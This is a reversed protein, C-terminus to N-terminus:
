AQYVAPDFSESLDIEGSKFAPNDYVIEQTPALMMLRSPPRSYMPQGYEYSIMSAKDVRDGQFETYQPSRPGKPARAHRWCLCCVALGILFLILGGISIAVPIVIDLTNDSLDEAKIREACTNGNYWETCVCALPERECTAGNKCYGRDCEHVCETGTGDVDFYNPFCNCTYGLTVASNVTCTANTSCHNAAASSCYSLCQNISTSGTTTTFRRGEPCQTCTFMNAAPQYTGVPCPVCSNTATSFQQGEICPSRCDSEQTAGVNPTYKISYPCDICQFAGSSPQYTGRECAVCRQENLIYRNGATCPSVNCDDVSDSGTTMTLLGNPCQTCTEASQNSKYTGHACPQCQNNPGVVEGLPCISICDAISTSGTQRTSNGTPCNTCSVQWKQSNYTGVPCMQCTNTNTNRYYGPQTCNAITCESADLGGEGVTIHSIPCLQCQAQTRITSNRYYGRPCITCSQTTASYEFGSGCNLVCDTVSDAGTQLTVPTSSPCSKCQEQWIQDQYKDYPCLRCQPVSPNTLRDLYYGMGCAPLSCLTPDTAGTGETTTNAPCARCRAAAYEVKYYGRACEQCMGGIDEYGPRCELICDAESITGPRETTKDTGCQICSSQWKLPQYYGKACPQCTNNSSVLYTGASCNAVTCQSASTSNVSPTIFDIPCLQCMAFLGDVANNKYYGQQCGVCNGTATKEFGSNCYSECQTLSTSNATRTSQGTPCDICSSQYANPQYTGMPCADCGSDDANRKTGPPCTRINCDLVSDSGTGATTYLTNCQKCMMFLGDANDKYYGKECPICIGNRKEQGSPCYTECQGSSNSAVQRTSYGSDCLKCDTSYPVDQYTGLPCPECDNNAANPKYGVPCKYITCNLASTAGQGATRLNNPCLTCTGQINISNDKYYGIPCIQCSTGSVVQYGSPCYYLCQSQSSSGTTETRWRASDGCSICETQWKTPQYTNLPCDKCTNTTNDRYTGAECAVIDCQSRSKTATTLTIFGTPCNVCTSTETANRYQGIQCAVCNGVGNLQYGSDCTPSCLSSSNTGTFETTFGASCPKCSFQGTQDQYYGLPCPMCNNNAYSFYQGVPCSKKCMNPDFEGTLETTMGTGCSKCMTQKALDQYMGLPCDDCVATTNTADLYRFYNGPGCEVCQGDMLVEGYACVATVQIVYNEKEIDGGAITDNFNLVDDGLIFYTLFDETLIQEGDLTTSTDASSLIIELIIGYDITQRKRRGNNNGCTTKLSLNSCDSRQCLTGQFILQLKVFEELVRAKLNTDVANCASTDIRYNVRIYIKSRPMERVIGCSPYRFRRNNQAWNWSGSPGCTFLEPHVRDILHTSTTNCSIMCGQRGSVPDQSCTQQGNYPNPPRECNKERVYLRFNCFARNNSGDVGVYTVDYIGWTYTSGPQHTPEMVYGNAGINNFTPPTWTVTTIRDASYTIIDEPCNMVEPLTTSTYSSCSPVRGAASCEVGSAESPIRRSVGSELVYENWVLIVQALNADFIKQPDAFIQPIEQQFTLLRKYWNVQSLYGQFSNGTMCQHNENDFECGLVVWMRFSSNSMQFQAGSERDHSVTDLYLSVVGSAMDWQFTVLHWDGDNVDANRDYTLQYYPTATSLYINVGNEDLEILRSAEELRDGMFQTLYVGTAGKQAYRVWLSLSLYNPSEVSIPYPIWAFGYGQPHNFHLDYNRDFERACNTGTMKLPCRCYYGNIDDFCTGGGPCVVTACENIETECHQGTYGALCTCTYRNLSDVSCTAGNMCPNNSGCNDRLIQCGDGTYAVPCTCTMSGSFSCPASNQCKNYDQCPDPRNECNTGYTSSPCDCYYGDFINRCTALCQGGSSPLSCHQTIQDCNKGQWGSPCVCRYDNFMHQCTGGHLCPNSECFQTEDECMDGEYGPYCDCQYGVATISRCTGHGSCTIQGSPPRCFNVPTECNTGQYGYACSCNYTGVLDTCTGGNRCPNSACENINTQCNKGTFGFLCTCTYGGFVNSCSGGNVCPQPTCYDNKATCINNLFVRNAACKFQVYYDLTNSIRIGQNTCEAPFSTSDYCEQGVRCCITALPTTGGCINLGLNNLTTLQEDDFPDALSPSDLDYKLSYFDGEPYIVVKTFTNFGNMSILTVGSSMIFCRNQTTDFAFMACGSQLSTCKERCLNVTNDGTATLSQVNNPGINQQIQYQAYGNQDYAYGPSCICARNYHKGYVDVCNALSDRSRCNFSSCASTRIECYTGSYGSPCDCRFSNTLDHCTGGNICPTSACDDTNIECNEGEYGDKCFCKRRLNSGLSTDTCNLVGPGNCPQTVCIATKASCDSGSYGSPCLCQTFGAFNICHGGNKCTPNTPDTNCTKILNECRTGTAFGRCDCTFGSPASTCTGNNYCPNSSCHNVATGCQPGFYQGVTCECNAEHNRIACNGGNQCRNTCLPTADLCQSAATLGTNISYQSNPNCAICATSGPTNQYYNRPCSRCASNQSYGNYSFYGAACQAICDSESASTLTATRTNLGCSYCSTSGSTNSYQNQGCPTCPSMGTASYFGPPCKDFCMTSATAGTFYTSRNNDCSRCQGEEQDNYTGLPCNECLQTAANRQTGRPCKVRLETESICQLSGATRTTQGSPCQQCYTSNFPITGVACPTCPALGSASYYGSGCKALCQTSSVAGEFYTSTGSPCDVCNVQATSQRYKGIPCLQCDNNAISQTGVPCPENSAVTSSICSEPGIGGLGVTTNGPGCQQCTTSSTRYYGKPCLYCPEYGSVSVYNSSCPAVCQSSSTAGPYRTTYGNPCSQCQTDTATAYNGVPCVSCVQGNSYTGAPCRACRNQDTFSPFYPLVCYSGTRIVVAVSDWKLTPCTTNGVINSSFPFTNGPVGISNNFNTSCSTYIAPDPNYMTYDFDMQVQRSNLVTGVTQLTLFSISLQDLPGYTVDCQRTLRAEMSSFASPSGSQLRENYYTVCGAPVSLVADDAPIYQYRITGIFQKSVLNDNRVCDPVYASFSSSATCSTTISTATTSYFSYGPNCQLTCSYGNSIQTCTKNGNVPTPLALPSCPQALIIIQFNCSSQLGANDTVTMTMTYVQNLNAYSATFTSPSFEVRNIGSYDSYTGVYGSASDTFNITRVDDGTALYVARSSPCTTIVPPKTDDICAPFKDSAQWPTGDNCTVTTSAGINRLIKGTNCTITCDYGGTRRVCSKSGLSPEQLSLPSCVPPVATYQFTCTATNAARDTVSMQVTFPRYLDSSTFTHNAPSFVTSSITNTDSISASGVLTTFDVFQQSTSQTLSVTQSPPCTVTPQLTDRVCAPIWSRDWNGTSTTCTVTVSKSNVFTYLDRCTITCQRGAPFTTTTCTKDADLPTPYSLESCTRPRVFIQGRCYAQNNNADAVQATYTYTKYLDLSTVYAPPPSFITFSAVNTNDSTVFNTAQQLSISQNSSTTDLEVPPYQSCVIVPPTEDYLQVNIQCTAINGQFDTATYTVTLDNEVFLTTNANAPNITFSRVGTNDIANLVPLRPALQEYKRVVIPSTPCNTITPNETDICTPVTGIFSTGQCTLGVNNSLTYGSRKCGFTVTSKDAFSSAILYGGTPFGPDLCSQGTCQLSGFDWTGDLQCTVTSASGANTVGQRSGDTCQFTFSAGYRTSTVPGYNTGPYATPTGCDIVGCEYSSGQLEYTNTNYNYTCFRYRNFDGDQRTCNLYLRQGYPYPGTNFQAVNLLGSPNETPCTAAACVPTPSEWLGNSGCKRTSRYPTFGIDCQYEVYDGFRHRTRQTLLQGNQIPPPSPCEILVCTHNIYYSDTALLGTEGAQRPISYGSTGDTVYLVYPVPCTCTYTGAPTNSCTGACNDTNLTCENIDSCFRGNPQLEYGPGCSCVYSGDTNTCIDGCPPNTTCEDIDVCVPLQTLSRDAMCTVVSISSNQLVYGTNCIITRTNEYEIFEGAANSSYRGNPIEPLRCTLKKCSPPSAQTWTGNPQCFVIPEGVFEYGANCQFRYITGISTGDGNVLTGNGNAVFTTIQGAPCTAATCAPRTSWTGDSRCTIMNGLVPAPQLTSGPYCQYVAVSGYTSGYSSEIYGNAIEPAVGCYKPTCRPIQRYNWVGRYGCELEVTLTGTPIQEQQIAYGTACSLNFKATYYYIQSGSSLIDNSSYNPQPCGVSWMALFGRASRTPSTMMELLLNGSPIQFTNGAINSTGYGNAPMGALAVGNNYIKLYDGNVDRGYSADQLRSNSDFYIAIPETVTVNWRCHVFGPYDINGLYGPTFLTGSKTTSEFYCGQRYNFQFIVNNTVTTGTRLLVSMKNGTSFVLRKNNCTDSNCYTGLLSDQATDGDFFMIMDDDNLTVQEVQLTILLGLQYMNMTEIVVIYDRQGLFTQVGALSFPQIAYTKRTTEATLTVTHGTSVNLSGYTGSFGTSVVTSDTSFKIFMLNNYSRYTRSGLNGSIRAVRTALTEINSGVYVTVFDAEKETNFNQFEVYANTGLPTEIAWTCTRANLYTFAALSGTSGKHVYHCRNPCNLEDSGDMCDTRGDCVLNVSVYGGSFCHFSQQPAAMRECVFNRKILCSGYSWVYPRDYVYEVTNKKAFVCTGDADDPEADAWFAMYDTAAEGTSWRLETCSTCANTKEKSLGIYYTEGATTLTDVRGGLLDNEYQDKITVLRSGYSQCLEQARQYSAKNVGSFFKYCKVGALYFWGDATNCELQPTQSTAERLVGLTLLTLTVSLKMM